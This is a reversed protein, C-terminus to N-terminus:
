SYRAILELFERPKVGEPTYRVRILDANNESLVDGKYLSVINSLTARKKDTLTDMYDSVWLRVTQTDQDYRLETEETAISYALKTCARTSDVKRQYSAKHAKISKDLNVPKYATGMTGHVSSVCDDSNICEIRYVDRATAGMPLSHRMAGSQADELWEIAQAYGKAGIAIKKKLAKITIKVAHEVTIQEGTEDDIKDEQIILACAYIRAPLDGKFYERLRSIQNM